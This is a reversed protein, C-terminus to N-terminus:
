PKWYGQSQREEGEGMEGLLKLAFSAAFRVDENEDKLAHLVDPIVSDAGAGLSRLIEQREEM